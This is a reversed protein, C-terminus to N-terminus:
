YHHLLDAAVADEDLGDAKYKEVWIRILHRSLDHRNAPGQFTEDAM